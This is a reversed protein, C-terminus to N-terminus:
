LQLEPSWTRAIRLQDWVSAGEAQHMWWEDLLELDSQAPPTPDPSPEILGDAAFALDVGVPWSGDAVPEHVSEQTSASHPQPALADTQAEGFVLWESAVEVRETLDAPVTPPPSSAEGEGAVTPAAANLQNIVQLADLATVENDGSTDYFPPSLPATVPPSLPGPGSSNLRNIVILADLPTVGDQDDVDLANNANQWPLQSTMAADVLMERLVAYNATNALDHSTLNYVGVKANDGDLIVVDRFTVQWSTVVDSKGDANADVDQLWPLARGATATPNGPEQGKENVGALQIRLAPYTDRLEQQLTNM